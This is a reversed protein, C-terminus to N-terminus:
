MDDSPDLNEFTHVLSKEVTKHISVMFLIVAMVNLVGGTVYIAQTEGAAYAYPNYKENGESDQDLCPSGDFYRGDRVLPMAKNGCFSYGQLEGSAYFSAAWFGILIFTCAMLVLSKAVAAPYPSACCRCLTFCCMVVAFVSLFPGLGLIYGTSAKEAACRGMFQGVARDVAKESWYVATKPDKVWQGEVDVLAASLMDRVVERKDLCSIRFASFRDLRDSQRFNWHPSTSILRGPWDGGKTGNGPIMVRDHVCTTSSVQLYDVHFTATELNPPPCEPLYRCWLGPLAFVLKSLKDQGQYSDGLFEEALFDLDVGLKVQGPNASYYADRAQRFDDKTQVEPIGSYAECLKTLPIGMMNNAANWQMITGSLLLVLGVAGTILRARRNAGEDWGLKDKWDVM